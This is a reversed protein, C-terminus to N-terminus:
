KCASRRTAKASQDLQQPTLGRGSMAARYLKEGEDCRGAGMLCSARTMAFPATPLTSRQDAAVLKDYSDLDAVCGKPDRAMKSTASGILKQTEAQAVQPDRPDNPGPTFNACGTTQGKFMPVSIIANQQKTFLAWAERCEEARAYCQAGLLEPSITKAAKMKADDEGRPEVSSWTRALEEHREKCYAKSKKTQGGDRLEQQVKLFRDRPALKGECYNAVDTDVVLDVNENTYGMGMYAKRSLQKGAECQGSLMLCRARLHVFASANPNTSANAPRPDAQDKADLEALCGKGDRAIAKKGASDWHELAKEGLQLKADLKGALNAASPSEPARGAIADPNEGDEIERLTLRIPTKCTAIEKASEGRCSALLGGKKEAASAYKSSGGAGAGWVTGGASGSINKTSGLAFAGLNYSYVFHTVGKCGPRKALDSKYAAPRTATRTGAVFYEMLFTEGASVRAGLTAVGLPLKAYLEGENKVDIKEVSGSTWDIPKYAGLSGKVSDDKCSDIIKLDCGEYKVFVVDNGSLAEFQSMDTADWEIVFPREHNKPNCKNAGAFSSDM